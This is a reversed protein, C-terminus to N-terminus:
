QRVKFQIETQQKEVTKELITVKEVYNKEIHEIEAMKEKRLRDCQQRNMELEYRLTSAQLFLIFSKFPAGDAHTFSRVCREKKRKASKM